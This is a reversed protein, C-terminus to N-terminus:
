RGKTRRWRLLYYGLTALVLALAVGLVVFASVAYEGRALGPPPREVVSAESPAGLDRWLAVTGSRANRM